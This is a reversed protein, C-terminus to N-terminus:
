RPSISSAPRSPTSCVASGCGGDGCRSNNESGLGLRSKDLDVAGAHPDLVAPLEASRPQRQFEDLLQSQVLKQLMRQRRSLLM